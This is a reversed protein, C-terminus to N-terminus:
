DFVPRHLLHQEQGSITLEYPTDGTVTNTQTFVSRKPICCQILGPVPDKDQVGPFPQDQDIGQVVLEDADYIYLVLGYMQGCQAVFSQQSDSGIFTFVLR